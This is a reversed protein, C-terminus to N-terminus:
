RHSHCSKEESNNGIEEETLYCAPDEQWIDDYRAEARARFNGNCADLFGCRSCRGKLLGKRDRLRGLLTDTAANGWIEEFSREKVNGLSPGNWFQDPHVFGREDIGAIGEGSRNGGNSRLLTLIEEARAPDERATKLYIYPGDAHNDVTLVEKKIGREILSRVWDCISDISRRTQEHSLDNDAIAAGRGSYVLHYFCARDVRLGEVLLMVAPLDVINERTMTFRLGVKQGADVLHNIGDVARAFAGGLGRFRDNREGIGDLSVGVYDCGAARISQALEATILTGNTSIVTRLGRAKACLVLEILDTRLLPEGGSFLLVPAGFDALGEIMRKAEATSLEGESPLAGANAYCHVCRLNCRRTSNWVVVPRNPRAASAHRYRLEDGDSSLGHLLKTVSIM